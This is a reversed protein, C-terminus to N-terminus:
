KKRNYLSIDFSEKRELCKWVDEDVTDEVLLHIYTCTDKQGIRHTRGLCQTYKIFDFTHSYFVMLSVGTLNFGIGMDAQLLLIGEEGQDIKKIIDDRRDEPTEGCYVEAKPLHEKLDFIEAKHKCVVVMKKHAKALEIVRDRKESKYSIPDDFDQKMVGNCIQLYKNWYTMYNGTLPNKDLDKIGKIQEKTLEFYEFQHIQEPLDPLAEEKSVVSGMSRLLSTIEGEIGKKQVAIRRHGMNVDIFFRKRFAYYNFNRGLLRGIAMVSWVQSMIPTATLAWVCRPGVEKLHSAMAKHMGSKPNGYYHAEDIIFGDFRKKLKKWDRKHEEKSMVTFNVSGDGWKEVEHKWNKKLSKTTTVLCEKIKFKHALEISTLTKGLGPDFFLGWKSKKADVVDQQHKYLKKKM